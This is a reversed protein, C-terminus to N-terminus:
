LSTFLVNGNTFGDSDPVGEILKQGVGHVVFILHNIKRHSNSLINTSSVIEPKDSGDELDIGEVTKRIVVKDMKKGSQVRLVEEWGRIIKKGQTKLVSRTLKSTPADKQVFATNSSSYLVFREERLGLLPWRPDDYRKKSSLREKVDKQIWLKKFGDEIQKTVNHNFPIYIGGAGKPEFWIGRRVEYIPGDWYIPGWEFTKVNVGFLGDDGISLTLVDDEDDKNDLLSQYKIELLQSDIESFAEWILPEKTELKKARFPTFDKIM